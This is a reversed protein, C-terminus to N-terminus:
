LFFCLPCDVNDAPEGPTRETEYHFVFYLFSYPHHERSEYCTQPQWTEAISARLMRHTVSAWEWQNDCTDRWLCGSWSDYIDFMNSIESKLEPVSM